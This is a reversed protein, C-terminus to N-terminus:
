NKQATAGTNGKAEKIVIASITLYSALLLLFGAATPWRPVDQVDLLDSFSLVNILIVSPPLVVNKRNYPGCIEFLSGFYLNFIMYLLFVGALYELDGIIGVCLFGVGVIGSYRFYNEFFLFCCLSVGVIVYMIVSDLGAFYEIVAEPLVACLALFIGSELLFPYHSFYHRYDARFGKPFTNEWLNLSFTRSMPYL